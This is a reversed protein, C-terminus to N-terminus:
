TASGQLVLLTPVLSGGAPEITIGIAVFNRQELPVALAIANNQEPVVTLLDAPVPAANAPIYWLQYTQTDPLPPLGHLVLQAQGANFYMEARATPADKTGTLTVVQEAQSYFAFQKRDADLQAQLQQNIQQFQSKESELLSVQQQSTSIQAALQDVKNRLQVTSLILLIIAAAASSAIVTRAVFGFWNRAPATAPQPRTPLRRLPQVAPPQNGQLLIQPPVFAPIRATSAPASFPNATQVPLGSNAIDQRARQLLQEKVREALPQAPAAYALQATAEDFQKLRKLLDRQEQLYADVALMEEPDLAGLVFVPLLDQVAVADLKLIGGKGRLDYEMM